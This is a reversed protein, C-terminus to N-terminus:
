SIKLNIYPINVSTIPPMRQFLQTSGSSAEKAIKAHNIKTKM